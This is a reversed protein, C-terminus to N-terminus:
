PLRGPPPPLQTPSRQSVSHAFQPPFFMGPSPFLSHLSVRPSIPNVKHTSIVIWQPWAPLSKLSHTVPTFRSGLNRQESGPNMETQAGVQIELRKHRPTLPSPCPIPDGRGSPFPWCSGGAEGDLAWSSQGRALVM